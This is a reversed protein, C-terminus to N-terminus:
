DAVSKDIVEVMGSATDTVNGLLKDSAMEDGGLVDSVGNILGDFSSQITDTLASWDIGRLIDRFGDVLAGVEQGGVPSLEIFTLIIATVFVWELLKKAFFFIVSFM